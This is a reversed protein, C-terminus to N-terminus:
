KKIKMLQSVILTPIIKNEYCYTLYVIWDKHDQYSM